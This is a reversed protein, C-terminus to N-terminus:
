TIEENVTVITEDTISGCSFRFFSIATSSSFSNPTITWVGDSFVFGSNDTSIVQGMIYNKLSDYLVINDWTQSTGYLEIEKIRITDNATVPMFGTCCVADSGSGSQAGSSKSIRYGYEYGDGGNTHTGVYDNGDTDVSLPLLNTITPTEPENVGSVELTGIETYTGDANEYKLTYTGDALNGSLLINNAEDLVGTVDGGAGGEPMDVLTLNGDTGVVLIKGVNASGQNKSVCDDIKGLKENIEAATYSLRYETAM